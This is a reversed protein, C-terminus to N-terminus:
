KISLPPMALVNKCGSHREAGKPACHEWSGAKERAEGGKGKRGSM